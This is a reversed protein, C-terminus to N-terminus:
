PVPRHNPVADRRPQALHDVRPAADGTLRDGPPHVPHRVPLDLADDVAQRAEGVGRPCTREAKAGFGRDLLDDLGEDGVLEVPRDRPSLPTKWRTMGAPARLARLRSGPVGAEARGPATIM